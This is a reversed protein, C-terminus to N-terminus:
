RLFTSHTKHYRRCKSSLKKQWGALLQKLFYVSQRLAKGWQLICLQSPKACFVFVMRIVLLTWVTQHTCTTKWTHNDHADPPLPLPTWSGGIPKSIQCNGILDTAFFLQGRTEVRDLAYFSIEGNKGGSFDKAVGTGPYIFQQGGV